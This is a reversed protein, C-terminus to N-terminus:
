GCSRYVGVLKSGLGNGSARASDRKAVFTSCRLSGNLRHSICLQLEDQLAFIQQDSIPAWHAGDERNHKTSGIVEGKVKTWDISADLAEDVLGCVVVNDGRVMYVGHDQEESPLEDDPPRIIREVTHQLVLNTVQDSSLLTGTLTRGDVTLILVKEAVFPDYIHPQLPLSKSGLYANLSMTVKDVQDHEPEFTPLLQKTERGRIPSFLTYSATALLQLITSRSRSTHPRTIFTQCRVSHSSKLHFSSRSKVHFHPRHAVVKFPFPPSYM